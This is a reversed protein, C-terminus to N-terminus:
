LILCLDGFEHCLYGAENAHDWARRLHADDVFARLLGFHSQGPDHMGTLIGDVVKLHFSEDVILSTMGEGATLRQNLVFSGELARVVTTGVAIVRGGQRHTQDIAGITSAPIDYREPFPLQADLSADGISSLGAAHTLRAIAVGRRKLEILTGWNLPYGASPMEAAWPRSAYATQVSWLSLGANLYSYQIPHGYAYIGAWM